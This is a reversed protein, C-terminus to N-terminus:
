SDQSEVSLPRSTLNVVQCEIGFANHNNTRVDDIMGFKIKVERLAPDTLHNKFAIDDLARNRTTYFITSFNTEYCTHSAFISYLGIGIGIFSVLVAGIYSIVLNKWDYSYVTL